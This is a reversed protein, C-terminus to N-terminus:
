KIIESQSNLIVKECYQYVLPQLQYVLSYIETKEVPIVIEETKSLTKGLVDVSLNLVVSLRISNDEPNINGGFRETRINM